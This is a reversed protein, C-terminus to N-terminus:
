TARKNDTNEESSKKGGFFFKCLWFFFYPATLASAWMNARDLASQWNLDHSIFSYPISLFSVIFFVSFYIAISGGFCVWFMKKENM